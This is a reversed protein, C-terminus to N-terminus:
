KFCECEYGNKGYNEAEKCSANQAENIIHQSDRNVIITSISQYKSFFAEISDNFANMSSYTSNGCFEKHVLSDNSNLKITIIRCETYKTCNCSCGCSIYITMFSIIIILLLINKLLTSKNLSKTKM